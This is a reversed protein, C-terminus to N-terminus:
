HWDSEAWAEPYFRVRGTDRPHQRLLAFPAQM